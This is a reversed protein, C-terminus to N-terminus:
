ESEPELPNAKVNGTDDFVEFLARIVLAVIKLVVFFDKGLSM